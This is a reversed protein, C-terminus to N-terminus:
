PPPRSTPARATRLAERVRAANPIPAVAGYGETSLAAAAAARGDRHAGRCVPGFVPGLPGAPHQVDVEDLEQSRDLDQPVRLQGALRDDDTTVAHHM